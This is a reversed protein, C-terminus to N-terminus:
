ILNKNNKALAKKVTAVAKAIANISAEEFDSFNEKVTKKKSKVVIPGKKSSTKGKAVKTEAKASGKKAVKATVKSSSKKSPTKGKAAKTAEEKTTAIVKKMITQQAKKLDDLNKKNVLEVAKERTQSEQYALKTAFAAAKQKAQNEQYEKKAANLTTEKLEKYKDYAQKETNSAVDQLAKLQSDANEINITATEELKKYQQDATKLALQSKKQLANYESVAKSAIMQSAEQLANYSKDNLKQLKNYNNIAKSATISAVESLAQIKKEQEIKTSNLSMTSEEQLYKHKNYTEALANSTTTLQNQLKNIKIVDAEQLTSYKKSSEQAIAYIDKNYKDQLKVLQESLSFYKAVSDEELTKYKKDVISANQAVTQALKEQAALLSSKLISSNSEQMQLKQNNLKNIMEQYSEEQTNLDIKFLKQEESIVRAVRDNERRQADTLAKQLKNEALTIASQLKTKDESATSALKINFLNTKNVLTEEAAALKSNFLLVNEEKIKKQQEAYVKSSDVLQKINASQEGITNQLQNIKGQSAVIAAEQKAQIAKAISAQEDAAIQNKTEVSILKSNYLKANDEAILKQKEAYDKAAALIEAMSAKENALQKRLEEDQKKAAEIAAQQKAAIAAAATAQEIAALKAKQQTEALQENYAKLAEAQIIKQQDAFAKAEALIKATNANQAALQNKLAEDQIRAAAIAAEQKAVIAAAAFAQEEAIKKEKLVADELAKKADAIQKEAAAIADAQKKAAAAEAAAQADAIAKLRAAEAADAAAKADAIAKLRAAEAAAAEQERKQKIQVGEAYLPDNKDLFLQLNWKKILYTSVIPIETMNLCRDWMIMEAVQGDSTEHIANIGLSEWENGAPKGNLFMKNNRMMSAFGRYNRTIIYVDWDTNSPGSNPAGPPNVWGISGSHYVSKHGGWYGYLTNGAYGGGILRGNTGGTQRTVFALTFTKNEALAPSKNLKMRAGTDFQLVPMKNLVNMKIIPKGASTNFNFEKDNTNSNWTTVSTGDTANPISSADAWVKVNTVPFNSASSPASANAGKINSAATNTSGPVNPDMQPLLGWKTALYSEIKSVEDDSLCTKYLIFEAIEADSTENSHGGTNIHLGNLENGLTKCFVPTGMSNFYSMKADTSRRITFIDWSSDSNKWFDYGCSWVDNHYTEKRGNWYGFLSNNNGQIFRQNSRGVQRTVMLMTFNANAGDLNNLTMKRSPTFRLVAHGNLVNTKVYPLQNKDPNSNTFFNGSPASSSPTWKDIATYNKDNYQTTEMWAVLNETPVNSMKEFRELFLSKM